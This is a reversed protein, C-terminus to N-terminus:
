ELIHKYRNALDQALSDEKFHSLYLIRNKVMVPYYELKIRTREDKSITEDDVGRLNLQPFQYPYYKPETQLRYVMGEPIKAFRGEIMKEINTVEPQPIIDSYLPSKQYNKLLISKAMNVYRSEIESVDLLVNNEFLLVQEKFSQIEKESTQFIEPYARKLYDFHWSRIALRLEVMRVDPRLNEIYRLYLWPSYHDWINTLIIADKKVSRLINKGWEHALLNKSRDQQFYNAKLTILPLIFFCLFSLNKLFYKSDQESRGKFLSNKLLHLIWFLGSGVMIGFVLFSPLFYPDIDAISYNIGYFINACFIILLFLFIKLNIRLLRYAGLFGIILLHIQFGKLLLSCFNKFNGMLEGLSESFMWVQYQWGSIHRLFNTLNAPDGWNLLPKQAARFPLYLYISLGLIFFLLLALLRKSNLIGKGVRTLILFILAPSLLFTSMHDGFSLGYLFIFLFFLSHTKKDNRVQSRNYWSLSLYVILAQLFINLSYVENTTAESWLTPTFAFILAGLFAGWIKLNNEKPSLAIKSIELLILFLFLNTFCILISSLFNLRFIVNKLPILTFAKGLLTYLPYGTPHAIGLTQCVVALEGSDIFYIDPSLTLFYIVGSFLLVFIGALIKLRHSPMLLNIDLCPM